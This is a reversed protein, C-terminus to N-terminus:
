HHAAALTLTNRGGTQNKSALGDTETIARRHEGLMSRLVGNRKELTQYLIALINLFLNLVYM